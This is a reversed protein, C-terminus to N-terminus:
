ETLRKIYDPTAPDDKFFDGEKGASLAWRDLWSIGWDMYVTIETQYVPDKLVEDMSVFAYDHKKYLAILADLYDSNLLSAHMLLIQNINRGFLRNSQREYYELKKEMYTIYDRGIQHLLITDNKQATRKYALAFLYDENDITVPAAIYNHSTLFDTLSDAKAKTNGVHLYPHRFYKMPKGQENIVEKLIGEGKIIDNTYYEYSVKNYNPHSFTHNGLDLGSSMWSKLLDVQYQIINEHSYLKMGNVFGIAPVHHTKLSYVIRNFLAKQYATDKIGYNVVPLDDLSFCVKKQQCFSVQCFVLFLCPVLLRIPYKM